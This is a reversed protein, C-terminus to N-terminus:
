VDGLADLYTQLTRIYDTGRERDSARLSEVKGRPNEEDGAALDILRLLVAHARVDDIHVVGGAGRRRVLVDLAREAARRSVPGGSMTQETTGVAACLRVRLSGEVRELVRQALNREDESSPVVAWIQDDLLACMADPHKSECQLSVISLVREPNVDVRQED